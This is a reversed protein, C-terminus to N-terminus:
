VGCPLMGADLGTSFNNLKKKTGGRFFLNIVVMTEATLSNKLAALIMKECAQRQREEHSFKTDFLM